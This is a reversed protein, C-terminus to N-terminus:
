LNKKVKEIKTGKQFANTALNKGDALINHLFAGKKVRKRLNPNKNKEFLIQQDIEM